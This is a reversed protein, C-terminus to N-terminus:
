EENESKKHIKEKLFISYWTRIMIYLPISIIAGLLGQLSFGILILVITLLSDVHSNKTRLKPTILSNEIKQLILGFAFTILAAYIDISWAAAVAPIIAITPGLNPLVELFFALISLTLAFPVNILKLSLFTSIGIFSMAIFKSRSFAGLQREVSKLFKLTKKESVYKKTLFIIKEYFYNHFFSFYFSIIILAFIQFLNSFSQGLIGLFNTIKSTIQLYEKLSLQLQAFNIKLINIQNEVLIRNVLNFLNTLELFLNPVIVLITLSIICLFLLYVLAISFFPKKTKKTLKNIVPNLSIAILYSFFVLILVGKIALVFFFLLILGIVEFIVGPSIQVDKGKNMFVNLM